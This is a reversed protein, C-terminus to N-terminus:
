RREHPTEEETFPLLSEETFADKRSLFIRGVISAHAAFFLVLGAITLPLDTFVTQIGHALM